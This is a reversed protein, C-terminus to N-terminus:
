CAGAHALHNFNDHFSIQVPWAQALIQNNVELNM